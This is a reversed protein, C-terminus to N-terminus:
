RWPIRTLRWTRYSLRPPKTTRWMAKMTSTPVAAIICWREFEVVASLEHPVGRTSELWDPELTNGALDLSRVKQAGIVRLCALIGAVEEVKPM